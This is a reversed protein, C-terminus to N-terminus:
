KTREEVDRVVYIDREMAARASETKMKELAAQREAEEAREVVFKDWEEANFAFIPNQEEGREQIHAAM